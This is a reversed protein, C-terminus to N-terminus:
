SQDELLEPHQRINGIVELQEGWLDQRFNVVGDTAIFCAGKFVISFLGGRLSRCIDEEYIDVGKLDQKGTFQMIPSGQPIIHCDDRKGEYDHSFTTGSNFNDSNCALTNVAYMVGNDWARFKIERM